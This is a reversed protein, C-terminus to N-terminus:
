KKYRDNNKPAYKPKREKGSQVLKDYELLEFKYTSTNGVNSYLICGDTPTDVGIYGNGSHITIVDDEAVITWLSERGITANWYDLGIGIKENNANKIKWKGADGTEFYIATPLYSASICDKDQTDTKGKTQVDVYLNSNQFKLAYAKGPTPDFQAWSTATCLVALMLTLFFNKKM